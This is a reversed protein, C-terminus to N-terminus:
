DDQHKAAVTINQHKLLLGSTVHRREEGEAVDDRKSSTADMRRWQQRMGKGEQQNQCACARSAVRSSHPAARCLLPRRFPACCIAQM